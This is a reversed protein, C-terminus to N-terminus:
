RNAFIRGALWGASVAVLICAIGYILPQNHAFDFVWADLGVKRVTVPTIQFTSIQEGDVLYTEVTYKGRPINRSFPLTAKFLTDGIFKVDAVTSGYLGREKYHAVLADHFPDQGYAPQFFPEHRFLLSFDAPFSAVFPQGSEGRRYRHAAYGLFLPVNHYVNEKTNIWIGAVREKKRVVLNREPGRVVVLLDGPTNTAGFLLLETGAFRSDIAIHDPALDAILPKAAAGAPLWLLALVPLIARRGKM